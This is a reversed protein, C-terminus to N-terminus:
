KISSIVFDLVPDGSSKYTLDFLSQPKAIMGRAVIENTVELDMTGMKGVLLNEISTVKALSLVDRFGKLYLYDKTFGGGRYVRTTLTFAADKEIEFENILAHYTKVFDGHELMYQVAIVRLAIIKLRDITLSGSCYESYLALGEQTHTNGPLGLSFVKLPHKKANITTLMHIGLEHYAFANLEKETFFADKNILLLAKENNVM